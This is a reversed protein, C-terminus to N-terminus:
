VVREFIDSVTKCHFKCQGPHHEYLRYPSDAPIVLAALNEPTPPPAAIAIQKRCIIKRMSCQTPLLGQAAQSLNQISHNIVQATGEMTDAARRKLETVARNM